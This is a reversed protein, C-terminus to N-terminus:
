SENRNKLRFNRVEKELLRFVVKEMIKNFVELVRGFFM